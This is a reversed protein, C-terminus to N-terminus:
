EAKPESEAQKLVEKVTQTKQAEVKIKNTQTEKDLVDEESKIGFYDACRVVFEEPTEDEPHFISLIREREENLRHAERVFKNQYDHKTLDPLHKNREKKHLFFDVEISVFIYLKLSYLFAILYDFDEKINEIEKWNYVALKKVLLSYSKRQRLAEEIPLIKKEQLINFYSELTSSLHENQIRQKYLATYKNDRYYNSIIAIGGTSIHDIFSSRYPDDGVFCGLSMTNLLFFYFSNDRDRNKEGFVDPYNGNIREFFLKNRQKSLNFNHPANKYEKYSKKYDEAIEKKFIVDFCQYFQEETLNHKGIVDLIRPM